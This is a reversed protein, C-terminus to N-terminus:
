SDEYNKAENLFVCEYSLRFIIGDTFKYGNNLNVIFEVEDVDIEQHMGNGFCAGIQTATGYWVYGASGDPGSVKLLRIPFFSNAKLGWETNRVANPDSDTKLYISVAIDTPESLPQTAYEPSSVSVTVQHMCIGFDVDQTYHQDPSGNQVIDKTLSFFGHSSDDSSKVHYNEETDRSHMEFVKPLYHRTQPVPLDDVAKAVTEINDKLKKISGNYMADGDAPTKKTWVDPPNNAVATEVPGKTEEAM